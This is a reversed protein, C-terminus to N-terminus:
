DAQFSPLVMGKNGAMKRCACGAKTAAANSAGKNFVHLELLRSFQMLCLMMSERYIFLMIYHQQTSIM